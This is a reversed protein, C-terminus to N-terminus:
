SAEKFFTKWDVKRERHTRKWWIKHIVYASIVFTKIM